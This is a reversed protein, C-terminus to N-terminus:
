ATKALEEGWQRARLEEGGVLPGVMGKVYFTHAVGVVNWGHRRARRRTARAASGPMPPRHVKTDFVAVAAPSGAVRDLWERVGEGDSLLPGSMHQHAQQRASERSMSWAHTPGGVVVVDLGTLDDPADGVEALETPMVASMGEAIARAIQETNGFMSEYVVIAHRGTGNGNM